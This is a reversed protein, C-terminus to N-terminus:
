KEATEIFTLHNLTRFHHRWIQIQRKKNKSKLTYEYDTIKLVECSKTEVQLIKSGSKTHPNKILSNSFRVHIFRLYCTMKCLAILVDNSSNGIKGITAAM